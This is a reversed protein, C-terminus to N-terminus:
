ASWRLSDAIAEFLEVMQDAILELPTSFALQLIYNRSPVPIYVDLSTTSIYEEEAEPSSVHQARRVSLGPGAAYAREGIDVVDEGEKFREYLGAVSTNRPGQLNFLSVLLSAPITLDGAPQMSLFLEIGGNRQAKKAEDRLQQRLEDKLHPMDDVGRFSEEVLREITRDRHRVDLDIRQWGEPLLFRYSPKENAM